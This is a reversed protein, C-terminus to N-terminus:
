EPYQTSPTLPFTQLVVQVSLQSAEPQSQWNSAEVQGSQWHIHM